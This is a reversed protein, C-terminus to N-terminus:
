LLVGAANGLFLEGDRVYRSLLAMRQAETIQAPKDQHRRCNLPSDSSSLM